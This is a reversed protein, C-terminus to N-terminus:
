TKLPVTSGSFIPACYSQFTQSWLVYYSPQQVIQTEFMASFHINKVPCQIGQTGTSKPDLTSDTYVHLIAYIFHIANGTFFFLWLAYQIYIKINCDLFAGNLMVLFIYYNQKYEIRYKVRNDGFRVTGIRSLWQNTYQQAGLEGRRGNWWSLHLDERHYVFHQLRGTMWQITTLLTCVGM